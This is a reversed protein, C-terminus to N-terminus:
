AFGYQSDEDEKIRYALKSGVYTIDVLVAHLLSGYLLSDKNEITLSRQNITMDYNNGTYSTKIVTDKGLSDLMHVERKISGLKVESIYCYDDYVVEKDSICSGVWFPITALLLMMYKKMRKHACM